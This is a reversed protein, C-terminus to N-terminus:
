EGISLKKLYSIEYLEEATLLIEVSKSRRATGTRYSIEKNSENRQQKEIKTGHLLGLIFQSDYAKLTHESYRTAIDTVAFM